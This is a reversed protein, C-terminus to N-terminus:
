IKNTKYRNYIDTNHFETRSETLINYKSQLYKKQSDNGKKYCQEMLGNVGDIIQDDLENGNWTNWKTVYSENLSMEPIASCKLEYNTESIEKNAQKAKYLSWAGLCMCHNKGMRGKSWESQGTHKSFDQTDETVDFCIQHVGGGKESCYGNNDWSGKTDEESKRCKELPEGYINKLGNDEILCIDNINDGILSLKVFIDGMGGKLRDPDTTNRKVCFKGTVEDQKIKELESDSCSHSNHLIGIILRGTPTHKGNSTKSNDCEFSSVSSPIESENSCPDNITLVHYDYNGDRLTINIKEVKAYKM